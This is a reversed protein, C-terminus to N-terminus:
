GMMTKRIYFECINYKNENKASFSHDINESQM